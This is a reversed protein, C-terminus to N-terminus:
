PRADPSTETFFLALIDNVRAVIFLTSHTSHAFTRYGFVQEFYVVYYWNCFTAPAFKRVQLQKTRSAVAPFASTLVIHFCVGYLLHYNLGFRGRLGAGLAGVRGLRHAGVRGIERFVRRRGCGVRCRLGRRRVRRRSGLPSAVAILRKSFM